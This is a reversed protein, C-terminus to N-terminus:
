YLRLSHGYQTMTMKLGSREIGYMRNTNVVADWLIGFMIDGPCKVLFMWVTKPREIAWPYM